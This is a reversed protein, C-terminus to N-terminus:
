EEEKGEEEEEEEDDDLDLDLDDDEEDEEEEEDEDDEEEWDEEEEDEDEDEELEEEEDEEDEEEDEELEEELDDDLEDDDDDLDDDEEDEEEDEDEDDGDDLDDDEDEDEDADEEDDAILELEDQGLGIADLAGPRHGGGGKAMSGGEDDISVQEDAIIESAQDLLSDPVLVSIGRSVRGMRAGDAAAQPALVAPIDHEVLLARYDEAEKASRAVIAPVLDNSHDKSRSPM